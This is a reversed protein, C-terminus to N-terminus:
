LFFSESPTWLGGDGSLDSVRLSKVCGQRKILWGNVQNAAGGVSVKSKSELLIVLTSTKGLSMQSVSKRSRVSLRSQAKQPNM